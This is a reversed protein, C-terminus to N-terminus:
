LAQQTKSLVDSFAGSDRNEPTQTFIALLIPLLAESLSELSCYLPLGFASCCSWCLRSISILVSYLSFDCPWERENGYM